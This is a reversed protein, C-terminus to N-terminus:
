AAQKGSAHPVPDSLPYFERRFVLPHARRQVAPNGDSLQVPERVPYQYYFICSCITVDALLLQQIKEPIIGGDSLLRSRRLRRGLFLRAPRVFYWPPLCLPRGNGSVVEHCFLSLRRYEPPHCPHLEDAPELVLSSFFFSTTFVTPLSFSLLIFSSGLLMVPTGFQGWLPMLILCCAAVYGYLLFEYVKHRAPFLIFTCTLIFAATCIIQCLYVNFNM